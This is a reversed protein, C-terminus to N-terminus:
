KGNGLVEYHTQDTKRIYGRSVWQSVMDRTGKESMGRSRRLALADELTFVSPLFNLLNQRRMRTGGATLEQNAREIDDGFFAMKCWLDYELSWRIFADFTPDWRCGNAVYLVCGKLWAIVLARFSLNEYVRSQTLRAQDACEERLRQALAFAEPCDVTGHTACLREIYPKLQEAFSDDYLGYVPMEAGIEREPITCFNIRSVPGDTLVQRFYRRGKGITTSANWNYRITVKETVSQVGVRTQGYRNGPDFALCMIRFQQGSSGKLADFQDIENLKSYLFHGDSEATRMVFAPNTMDADIEQIVLGEPRMRKDKNAGKSNIENKWERERRLNEADRERIDAMIYNIPATICDKGAGTGAMLVNMLTAEHMVNDIYRFNVKYLHAALSPFVAHAVAPRYVRPTRSLLLAILPPLQGPMEPPVEVGEEEEAVASLADHAGRASPLPCGEAGWAAATRPYTGPTAAGAQRELYELVRSMRTPMANFTSALANRIKEEKQAQPFGDYCPIVANLWDFDNGCIHRLDCALQYTLTDRDGQVPEHGYNNLLWYTRLIDVFRFGHYTAPFRGESSHQVVAHSSHRVAESASLAASSLAAASSAAAASSHVAAASTNPTQPIFQADGAVTNHFNKSNRLADANQLDRSGSVNGNQLDRSGSVSPAFPVVSPASPAVQVSPAAQVVSPVSSVVQVSSVAQVSPASSAASQLSISVNQPLMRGWQGLQPNVYVPEAQRDFLLVDDRYLTDEAITMFSLRTIDKCAEDIKLGTLQALWLQDAVIDSGKRGRLILRLGDGSATVSAWALFGKLGIGQRRLAECFRAFVQQPPEQCHDVDIMFLGSPRFFEIKRYGSRKHRKMWAERQAEPVAQLAANYAEIYHLYEDHDPYGMPVMARLKVKLASRRERDTEHRIRRILQHQYESALVDDLKEKTLYKVVTDFGNDVYSLM